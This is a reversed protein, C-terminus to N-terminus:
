QAIVILLYEMKPKMKIRLYNHFLGLDGCSIDHVFLRWGPTEHVEVPPQM